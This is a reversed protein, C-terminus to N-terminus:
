MMNDICEPLKCYCWAYLFKLLKALSSNLKCRGRVKEKTFQSMNGNELCETLHERKKSLNYASNVVTALSYRVADPLIILNHM